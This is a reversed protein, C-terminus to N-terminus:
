QWSPWTVWRCALGDVGRHPRLFRRACTPSCDPLFLDGEACQAANYASWAQTYTVKVQETVVAGDTDMTERRIVIEVALVHKCSRGRLAFDPCSCGWGGTNPIGDVIPTPAVRYEGFGTQSPVIWGKADRKVPM